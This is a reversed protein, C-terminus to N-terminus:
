GAFGVAFLMRPLWGEGLLAMAFSPINPLDKGSSVRQVGIGFSLVLGSEYVTQVGADMAWGVQSLSIPARDTIKLTHRALLLSPGIFFGSAGGSGAYLRYTLEAGQGDIRGELPTTGESTTTGAHDVHLNVGFAQHESAVIQFDAGYRGIVMSLPNVTLVATREEADAVKKKVPADKAAYASPAFALLTVLATALPLAIRARPM